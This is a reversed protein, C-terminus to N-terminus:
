VAAKWDSNRGATGWPILLGPGMGFGLPVLLGMSAPLNPFLTYILMLMVLLGIAAQTIYCTLEIFCKSVPGKGFKTKSKGLGIVIFTLALLHYVYQGLRDENLTILGLVQQSLILGFFGGIINNPVLYRQFFPIYRRIITGIVLFAGLATVDLIFDKLNLSFDWPNM